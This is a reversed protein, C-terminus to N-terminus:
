DSENEVLNDNNVEGPLDCPLPRLFCAPVVEEAQSEEETVDQARAHTHRSLEFGYHHDLAREVRHDQEPAEGCDGQEALSAGIQEQPEAIVDNTSVMRNALITEKLM